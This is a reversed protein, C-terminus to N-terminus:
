VVWVIEMVVPAEANDGEEADIQTPAVVVKVSGDPPPTHLVLAGVTAVTAPPMTVPRVDPTAVIEYEIPPHEARAVTVTEVGGAAIVGGEMALTHMPLVTLRPSAVGPPAHLLPEPPTAVTEPVPTTVPKDIPDAVIDYVTPPHEAMLTTFTVEPGPGIEGFGAVTHRAPVEVSVSGV